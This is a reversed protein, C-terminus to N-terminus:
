REGTVGQGLAKHWRENKEKGYYGLIYMVNTKAVERSTKAKKLSVKLYEEEIDKVYGEFFERIEEPKKLKEIATFVPDRDMNYKRMKEFIKTM